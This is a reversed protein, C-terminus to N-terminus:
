KKQMKSGSKTREHKFAGIGIKQYVIFGEWKGKKYYTSRLSRNVSLIFAYDKKPLAAKLLLKEALTNEETEIETLISNFINEFKEEWSQTLPAQGIGHVEFIPIVVRREKSIKLGHKETFIIAEGSSDYLPYGGCLYDIRCIKRLKSTEALRETIKRVMFMGMATHNDESELYSNLNMSNM